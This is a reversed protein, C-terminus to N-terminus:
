IGLSQQLLPHFLVQLMHLHISHQQTDDEDEDGEDDM